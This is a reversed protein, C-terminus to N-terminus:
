PNNKKLNTHIMSPQLVKVATSQCWRKVLSKNRVSQDGTAIAAIVSRDLQVFLIRSHDCQTQSQNFPLKISGDPSDPDPSDCWTAAKCVLNLVHTSDSIVM